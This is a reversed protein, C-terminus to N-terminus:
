QRTNEEGQDEGQDDGESSRQLSSTDPFSRNFAGLSSGSRAVLHSADSQLNLAGASTISSNTSLNGYGSINRLQGSAYESAGLNDGGNMGRDVSDGGAGFVLGRTPPAIWDSRGYDSTDSGNEEEIGDITNYSKNHDDFVGHQGLSMRRDGGNLSREVFAVHPKIVDLVVDVASTKNYCLVGHKEQLDNLDFALEEDDEGHSPDVDAGTLIINLRPPPQPTTRSNSAQVGSTNGSSNVGGQTISGGANGINLKSDFLTHFFSVGDMGAMFIDSVVVSFQEGSKLRELAAVGDTEHAVVCRDGFVRKCKNIFFYAQVREDEIYLISFDTSITSVYSDYLSDHFSSGSSLRSERQSLSKRRLMSPMSNNPMSSPVGTPVGSESTPVVGGGTGGEFERTTEAANEGRRVIAEFEDVTRTFENKTNTHTQQAFTDSGHTPVWLTVKETETGVGSTGQVYSVSLSGGVARLRRRWFQMEASGLRQTNQNKNTADNSDSGAHTEVAAIYEMTVRIGSTPQQLLRESQHLPSAGSLNKSQSGDSTKEDFVKEATMVCAGRVVHAGARYVLAFLCCAFTDRALFTMENPLLNYLVLPTDKDFLPEALACTDTVIKKVNELHSVKIPDGQKKDTHSNKDGNSSAEFLRLTNLMMTSLSVTLDANLAVMSVHNNADHLAQAMGKIGIVADRWSAADDESSDSCVSSSSLPNQEFPQQVLPQSKPTELSSTANDNPTQNSANVVTRKNEARGGETNTSRHSRPTRHPTTERFLATGNPSGDENFVERRRFSFETGTKEGSTNPGRGAVRASDPESWGSDKSRMKSISRAVSEPTAPVALPFSEARGMLVAFSANLDGAGILMASSIWLLPISILLGTVVLAAGSPSVVDLRNFLILLHALSAVWALLAVAHLNMKHWETSRRGRAREGRLNISEAGFNFGVHKEKPASKKRVDGSLIDAAHTAAAGANPQPTDLDGPHARPESRADPNLRRGLKLVVFAGRKMELLRFGRILARADAAPLSSSSAVTGGLVDGVEFSPAVEWRGM